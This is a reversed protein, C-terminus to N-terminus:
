NVQRNIGNAGLDITKKGIGITNNIPDHFFGDPFNGFGYTESPQGKMKETNNLYITGAIDIDQADDNNESQTESSDDDNNEAEIGDDNVIDDDQADEDDTSTDDDTDQHDILVDDDQEDSESSSSPQEENDSPDNQADGQPIGDRRPPSIADSDDSESEWFTGDAQSIGDKREFQHLDEDSDDLDDIMENKISQTQSQPQQQSQIMQLQITETTLVQASVVSKPIVVRYKLDTVDMNVYKKPIEILKKEILMTFIFEYKNNSGYPACKIEVLEGGGSKRYQGYKACVEDLKWNFYIYM